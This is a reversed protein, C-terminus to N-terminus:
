FDFLDAKDRPRSTAIYDFMSGSISHSVEQASISSHDKCEITGSCDIWVCQIGADILIDLEPVEFDIVLACVTAGNRLMILNDGVRVAENIGDLLSHGDLEIDSKLKRAQLNNNVFETVKKFVTETCKEVIEDKLIGDENVEDNYIMVKVVTKQNTKLSWVQNIGSSVM